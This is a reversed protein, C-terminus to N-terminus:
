SAQDGEHQELFADYDIREFQVTDGHRLLSPRQRTADFMRIPTCGILHWGGASECPYVATMDEALAVSGPAIRHRPDSRRPLRLADHLGTLYGFGPAFGMARVSYTKQLHLEIVRESMLGLSAAVSELDPALPSAYCVPITHHTSEAGSSVEESEQNLLSEVLRTAESTSIQTMDLDILVGEGSPSVSRLIPSDPLSFVGSDVPVVSADQTALIAHECVWRLTWDGM